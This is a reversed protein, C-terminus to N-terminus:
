EPYMPLFQIKDGCFTLLWGYQLVGEIGVGLAITLLKAPAHKYKPNAINKLFYSM